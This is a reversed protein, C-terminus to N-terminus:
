KADPQCFILFSCSSVAKRHAEDQQTEKIEEPDHSRFADVDFFEYLSLGLSDRLLKITVIGANDSDIAFANIQSKPQTYYFLIVKEVNSAPRLIPAPKATYIGLSKRRTAWM